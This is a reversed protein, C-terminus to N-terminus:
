DINMGDIHHQFVANFAIMAQSALTFYEPRSLTIDSPSLLQQKVAQLLTRTSQEAQSLQQNLRSDPSQLQQATQQSLREIKQHLYTLQTREVSNCSGQTVVKVGAARCRGISEINWLLERWVFGINPFQNFDNATLHCNEALDELLYLLQEILLTHEQPSTQLAPRNPNATTNTNINTNSQITKVALDHWLLSCHKWSSDHKLDTDLPTTKQQIRQELEIMENLVETDGLHFAMSLGRHTQVDSILQHLQAIWVLGKQQKQRLSHQQKSHLIFSGITVMALCFTMTFLAIM